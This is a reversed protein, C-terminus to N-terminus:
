PEGVTGAGRVEGKAPELAVAVLVAAQMWFPAGGVAAADPLCSPSRCGPSSCELTTVNVEIPIDPFYSGRPNTKLRQETVTVIRAQVEDVGFRCKVDGLDQFARGTITVATNGTFPGGHPFIQRVGCACGSFHSHGLTDGHPASPHLLPPVGVAAAERRAHLSCAIPATLVCAFSLSLSVAASVLSLPVRM